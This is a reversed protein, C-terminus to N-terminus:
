PLRMWLGINVAVLTAWAAVLAGWAVIFWRTQDRLTKEISVTANAFGLEMKKELAAFGSDMRKDQGSVDGKLESRLEALRQELKADFRAFHVDMLQHLESKYTADVQNLLEVFEAVIDDGFRDYFKKSLKIAVPM